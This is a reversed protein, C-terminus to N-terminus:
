SDRGSQVALRETRETVRDVYAFADHVSCKFADVRLDSFQLHLDEIKADGLALKLSEVINRHSRCFSRRLWLCSLLWPWLWGKSRLEPALRLCPSISLPALGDAGRDGRDEGLM